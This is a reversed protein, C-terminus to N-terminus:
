DQPREIYVSLVSSLMILAAGLFQVPSLHENLFVTAFIFSYPAELLCLMSATTNSLVKQSRIQLFFALLSVFISLGIISLVSKASVHEPILHVSKYSMEYILFPIIVFWSWLTQFINYRFANKMKRSGQGVFLIHFTGAVSAGLTILDGFNYEFNHKYIELLFGLGIFALLSLGIHYWHLKTKYFYYSAIPIMVVYLSTIFSSNTATTFNLGHTQFLLTSGLALGAAMSLKFDSHSNRYQDRQFIFMLTEGLVIAFLFRWFILTSTSFDVLAWKVLTFSGGWIAGAIILELVARHYISISQLAKKM